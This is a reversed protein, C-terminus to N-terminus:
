LIPFRWFIVPKYLLTELSSVQKGWWHPSFTLAEGHVCCFWLPELDSSNRHQSGLCYGLETGFILHPSALFSSINIEPSWIQVQVCSWMGVPVCLLWVFCYFAALKPKCFPSIRRFYAPFTMVPDWPLRATCRCSEPLFRRWTQGKDLWASQRWRPWAHCGVTRCGDEGEPWLSQLGNGKWLKWSRSQLGVCIVHQAQLEM